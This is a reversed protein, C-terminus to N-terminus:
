EKLADIKLDDNEPIEYVSFFDPKLTPIPLCSCLYREAFM